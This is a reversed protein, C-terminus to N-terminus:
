ISTRKKKREKNVYGSNVQTRQGNRIEGGELWALQSTMCIQGGVYTQWEKMM